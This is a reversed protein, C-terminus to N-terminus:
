NITSKKDYEGKAYIQLDETATKIIERCVKKLKPKTVKLYTVSFSAKAEKLFWVYMEIDEAKGGKAKKALRFWTEFFDDKFPLEM